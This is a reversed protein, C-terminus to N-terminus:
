REILSSEIIEDLFSEIAVSARRASQPSYVLRASPDTGVDPNDFAHHTQTYLELRVDNGACDMEAILAAITSMPSVQDQTGQLILIPSRIRTEMQEAATKLLASCLIIGAVEIRVKQM